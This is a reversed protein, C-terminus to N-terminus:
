AAAPQQLARRRWAGRVPRPRCHRDPFRALVLKGENMWVPNARTPACDARRGHRQSDHMLGADLLERIVFGPGGAAQFQNVDATGNPYVRALLPVM